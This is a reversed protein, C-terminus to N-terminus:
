RILWQVHGGLHDTQTTDRDIDVGFIKEGAITQIMQYGQTAVAPIIGGARWYHLFPLHFLQQSSIMLANGGVYVGPRYGAKQVRDVWNNCYAIVNPISSKASVGEMDVWVNVGPPFGVSRANKVANDGDSAGEAGTPEWWPNEKTGRVHQVPMLALGADLIRNAEDTTLDFKGQQPNLSLYRLCFKFNEKAFKEAVGPRIVESTDFGLANNPASEIRGSLNGLVTVDIFDVSHVGFDDPFDLAAVITTTGAM